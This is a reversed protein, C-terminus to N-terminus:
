FYFFFFISFPSPYCTLSNEELHLYWFSVTQHPIHWENTIIRETVSLRHHGNWNSLWIHVVAPTNEGCLNWNNSCALFYLLPSFPSYHDAPAGESSISSSKHIMDTTRASPFASAPPNRDNQPWINSLFVSDWFVLACFYFM